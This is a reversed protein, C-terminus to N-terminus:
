NHKVDLETETVMGDRLKGFTHNCHVGGVQSGTAGNECPTTSLRGKHITTLIAPPLPKKKKTGPSESFSYQTEGNHL